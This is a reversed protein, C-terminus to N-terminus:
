VRRAGFLDSITGAVLLVSVSTLANVSSPWFLLNPPISLASAIEPLSVTPLGATFAPIFAELSLVVIVNIIRLKPFTLNQRAPTVGDTRDANSSEPEGSLDTDGRATSTYSLVLEIEHLSM